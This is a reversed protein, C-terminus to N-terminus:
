FFAIEARSSPARSSRMAIRPTRLCMAAAM